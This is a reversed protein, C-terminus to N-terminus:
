NFIKHFFSSTGEVAKKIGNTIKNGSPLINKVIQGQISGWDLSGEPKNLSGHLSYPFVIHNIIQNSQPTMFQLAVNYNISKQNLNISGKGSSKISPGSLTYSLPNVVGNRVVINANLNGLDTRQNLDKAGAATAKATIDKMKKISDVVQVSNLLLATSNESSLTKETSNLVQNIQSVFTNVNFGLMTINQITINQNADLTSTVNKANTDASANGTFKAVKIPLKFGNTDVFDSLEAQDLTLNENLKLPKISNMNVNGTINSTGIRTVLNGLNLSNATGAFKSKFSVTNLLTKNPLNPRPKGVKELVNNLSFTPVNINGTYQPNSLHQVKVNILAKVVNVFDIDLQSVDLNDSDGSFKSVLSFNNLLTNNVRSSKAIDLRDLIKNVSFPPFNIDGTYTPNDFNNLVFNIKGKAIDDLNLNVKSLILDKNEMDVKIIGGYDTDIIFNFNTLAHHKKTDLDDYSITSNKLTFSSLALKVESKKSTSTSSESSATSATTFAWNKVNNKKILALNVGELALNDVVISGHLLPFLQVAIALSNIEVLNTQGFSDPNSLSVKNIQLGIRPFLQWGIKGELSLKRGTANDVAKIILPKYNNPDVLTVLAIAGAIVLLILSAITILIIKILPSKKLM